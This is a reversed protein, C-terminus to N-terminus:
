AGHSNSHTQYNSIILWFHDNSLVNRCGKYLNKKEGEGRLGEETSPLPSEWRFEISSLKLSSCLGLEMVPHPFSISLASYHHKLINSISSVTNTEVTQDWNIGTFRPSRNPRGFCLTPM